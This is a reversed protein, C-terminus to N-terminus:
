HGASRTGAFRRAPDQGVALSSGRAAARLIAHRHNVYRYLRVRFGEAAGLFMFAMMAGYIPADIDEFLMWAPVIVGCLGLAIQTDRHRGRLERSALLTLSTRVALAMFLLLAALAAMGGKTFISVPTSHSGIPIALVAEDRRKIGQGIIPSERWTEALATSYSLFRADSSSQRAALVKDWAGLVAGPHVAVLVMASALSLALVMPRLNKPLRARAVLGILVAALFSFILIRSGLALLGFAMLGVIMLKMWAQRSAAFAAIGCLTFMLAGENSYIGFALPRPVADGSAWDVGTITSFEYLGLIGPLGHAVHGTLLSRFSIEPASRGAFLYAGLAFAAYGFFFAVIRRAEKRSMSFGLDFRRGFSFAACGCLLVVINYAGAILRQVPEGSFGAVGLSLALAAVLGLLAFEPAALRRGNRAFTVAFLAGAAPGIGLLWVLPLSLM